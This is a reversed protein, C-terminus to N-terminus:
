VKLKNLLDARIKKANQLDLPLTLMGKAQQPIHADNNEDAEFVYHEFQAQWAKRQAEPLGRLSLIAMKLALEPRGLYAPSDRWWHTILANFHDIGAVHHWWMSPIFLADGPALETTLSADLAQQFKPYTAFDPNDLDVLSIDQGGPSLELPGVYLNSVQEPPFVTFRRRGSICCALNHPFDYHAAIRTQNGLWISTLPKLHDIGANNLRNFGPMVSNIETSSVYLTPPSENSAQEFLKDLVLNLNVKSGQFNYGNMQQNYFVRGQNEPGGYCGFVPTGNYQKRLYNAAAEPSQKAEKVVPWDAAFDRLVLPESSTLVFDPIDNPHCNAIEKIQNQKSM